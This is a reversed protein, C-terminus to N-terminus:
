LMGPRPGPSGAGKNGTNNNGDNGGNNGSNNGGNGGRGRRRNRNGSNGGGSGAPAIPVRPQQPQQTMVLAQTGTKPESLGDDQLDNVDIEGLLLLTRAETFTPFPHQMRLNSVMHQFKGNLGRLLTLVLQRDGVPDGFEKLSAAMTELRHCYDMVSLDGQKFSCFEAELLLARSEHQGLFEGELYLWADCAAPDRIM